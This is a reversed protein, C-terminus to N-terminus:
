AAQNFATDATLLFSEVRQPRPWHEPVRVPHHIYPASVNSRRDVPDPPHETVAEVPCVVVQSVRAGANGGQGGSCRQLPTVGNHLGIVSCDNTGWLVHGYALAQAYAQGM